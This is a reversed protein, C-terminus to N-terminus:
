KLAERLDEIENGKTKKKDDKKRKKKRDLKNM